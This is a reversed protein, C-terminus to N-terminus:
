APASADPPNLVPAVEAGFILADEGNKRVRRELRLGINEAVRRSPINDPHIIAILHAAVGSHQAASRV